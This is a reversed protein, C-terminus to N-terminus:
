LPPGPVRAATKRAVAAFGYDRTRASAAMARGVRVPDYHFTGSVVDGEHFESAPTGLIDGSFTALDAASVVGSFSGTVPPSCM